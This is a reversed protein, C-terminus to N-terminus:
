LSFVNGHQNADYDGKNNKRSQKNMKKQQRYNERDIRERQLKMHTDSKTRQKYEARLAKRNEKRIARSEKDQKAEATYGGLLILVVSAMMVYKRM